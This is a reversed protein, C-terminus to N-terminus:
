ARPPYRQIWRYSGRTGHRTLFDARALAKALSAKPFNCDMTSLDGEVSKFDRETKFGGQQHLRRLGDTPTRPQDDKRTDASHGARAQVSVRSGLRKASLPVLTVEGGFLKGKDDRLTIELKM